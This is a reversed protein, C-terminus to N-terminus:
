CSARTCWRVQFAHCSRLSLCLAAESFVLALSPSSGVEHLALPLSPPMWISPSPPRSVWLVAAAKSASPAEFLFLGGIGVVELLVRRM